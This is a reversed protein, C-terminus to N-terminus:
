KNEVVVNIRKTDKPVKQFFPINPIMKFEYTKINSIGGLIKQAESSTIGKFQEKLKETDINPIVFTKITLQIDAEESTLTSNTSKGLIEASVEREKSALIYGQPILDKTLDGALKDLDEKYYSLGTATVAQNLTIKDVQDSVKNSFVKKTITVLESGKIYKQESSGKNELAKAVNATNKVLLDDSLKTLDAEAVVKVKESKGGSFTTKSKAELDSKKYGKVELSKDKSINYTSGIASATVKATKEGWIASGGVPETRAPITTEENLTFELDKDDYNLTAGKKLKISDVTKNYITVEGTAKEGVEKEGTTAQEMSDEDTAQLVAGKLIKKEADTTAGKVVRVTVSRTLPLTEVILKAEVRLSKIYLFLGFVGLLLVALGLAFSIKPPRPIRLSFRPLSPLSLRFKKSPTSEIKLGEEVPASSGGDEMMEILNLGYPDETSFHVTMNNKEAIHRILKLNLINEFLIAGRPIVLEIGTDKINKIENIVSTVDQHIEAELRTM